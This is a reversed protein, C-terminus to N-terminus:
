RGFQLHVLNCNRTVLQTMVRSKKLADQGARVYRLGRALLAGKGGSVQLHHQKLYVRLKNATLSSVEREDNWDINPLTKGEASKKQATLVLFEQHQVFSNCTSEDVM